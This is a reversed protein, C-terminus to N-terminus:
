SQGHAQRGAVRSAAALAQSDFHEARIGRNWLLLRDRLGVPVHRLSRLLKADRGVVYRSAPRRAELTRVIADVAIDVPAEKAHMLRDHAANAAREYLQRVEATATDAVGDDQQAQEAKSHLQTRMLGPTVICVSVGQYRLEMRLADSISELAAKSAAIPGLTPLAVTAAAGTVNVIRGRAARLLPLFAQTVAVHGIVNVEFQRWLAHQPVLELPGMIVLGANNVLADLGHAGVEAAVMDAARAVVVPDGVDVEVPIIAKSGRALAEGAKLSRVGAFVKWGRQDLRKVLASGVGGSAGTVFATKEQLAM